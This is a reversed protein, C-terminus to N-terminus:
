EISASEEPGLYAEVVRPDNRIEHPSGEAIKAGHDLVVIRSCIKAVLDLDHEILLIAVGFRRHISRLIDALEAREPANMGAAPEDLLLLKPRTALARAIELRRQAGYPLSAAEVRAVPELNLVRLWSRAEAEIAVEETESRPTALLSEATRAPHHCLTATRVNDLVSLKPFLRINQFTRAIGLRVIGHTKAGILSHGNFSAAGAAPRYVGTILNFLTSKGAGNPGVVGVCENARVDLDLSEIARLGGFRVTVGNLSLIPKAHQDVGSIPSSEIPSDARSEAASGIPKRPARRRVKTTLWALIGPLRSVMLWILLFSYAIMRWSEFGRFLDNVYTMGIGALAAGWPRGGGLIVMVVYDISHLFDFARDNISGMKFAYLGGALGAFFASFVFALVKTRTTDVGVAAAAVEDERVADFARGRGGRTLRGIVVLAALLTLYIAVFGGTLNRPIENFGRPGGLDVRGIPGQARIIVGVIENFGLTVIALYDGRLRLCPLAVVWGIAAAILGGVIVFAWASAFVLAHSRGAIPDPDQFTGSANSWALAFLLASGYAGVGQFAAHGLSFQGVVGNVLALSAAMLAVIGMRLVLERTASGFEIRGLAVVVVAALVVAVNRAATSTVVSTHKADSTM